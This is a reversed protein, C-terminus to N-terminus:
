MVNTHKGNEFSEKVIHEKRRKKDNRSEDNIFWSMVEVNGVEGHRSATALSKKGTHFNLQVVPRREVAVKNNGEETGLDSSKFGQIVPAFTGLASFHKAWLSLNHAVDEEVLRAPLSVLSIEKEGYELPSALFPNNVQERVGNEGVKVFPVKFGNRTVHELKLLSPENVKQDRDIRDLMTESKEISASATSAYTKPDPFCPLWSPINDVPPTEGVHFFSPTTQSEKIVPFCPVSYAFGVEESVGVYQTIEKVIGSGSLCRDTDSAGVFGQSQGLDELGHIIDFVNSETRGALNAYFNSLKGIDQIYKCTLDSLTDLASQQVGHLGVSECIQAVAIRALSLAFEDNKGRKKLSFEIRRSSEGGGGDNM